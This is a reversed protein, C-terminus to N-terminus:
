KKKRGATNRAFVMPFRKVEQGNIKLVFYYTGAAPIKLHKWDIAQSALGNESFSLVGEVKELVKGGADVVAAYFDADGALGEAKITTCSEFPPIAAPFGPVNWRRLVTNKEAQCRGESDFYTSSAFIHNLVQTSAPKAQQQAAVSQAAFLVIASVYWKM